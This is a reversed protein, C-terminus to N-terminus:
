QKWQLEEGTLAFYLNQLQHVHKINALIFSDHDGGRAISFEFSDENVTIFYYILESKHKKYSRYIHDDDPLYDYLEFGFEEIWKETLPIPEAESSGLYYRIDSDDWVRGDPEKKSNAITVGHCMLPIGEHDYFFNGIRLEHEIM